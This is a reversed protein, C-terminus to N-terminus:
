AYRIGLLDHDRHRRLATAAPSKARVLEEGLRLTEEMEADTLPRFEKAARVARQVEQVSRAGIVACAVGPVSLAYRFARDYDDALLGPNGGLVKMAVVGIDKARAHPLLGEIEREGREQAPAVYNVFPMIVDWEDTEELLFLAGEHRAHVSMGILRTLGRQKAERLFELSGGEWLVQETEEFPRLGVGHQLFLDVHDTKLRKLSGELDKEATAADFAYTKTAMFCEDRVSALVPGLREEALTYEPAADFYRIGGELAAEIVGRTQEESIGGGTYACGLGLITVSAGTRGLVRRALGEGEVLVFSGTEVGCEAGPVEGFAATTGAM